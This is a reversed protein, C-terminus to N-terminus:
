VRDPADPWSVEITKLKAPVKSTIECPALDADLAAWSSDCPSGVCMGTARTWQLM